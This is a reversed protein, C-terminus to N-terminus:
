PLDGAEARRFIIGDKEMEAEQTDPKSEAMLDTLEPANTDMTETILVPRCENTQFFRRRNGPRRRLVEPHDNPRSLPPSALWGTARDVTLSRMVSAARM